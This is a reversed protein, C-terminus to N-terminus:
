GETPAHLITGLPEGKLAKQVNGPREGSFIRIVLGPHREVLAMSQQVKSAMGGTVDIQASGGLIPFIHTLSTPTIEGLLRTCAPYDAWVGAEIGALLIREPVLVNALHEFLDETSLITGGRANDFVVDGHIVPLLGNQLAAIVPKLEWSQVRGDQSIASASPSLAIVPLGAQALSEIVIRTLASAEYWVEAFGRWQEETYVGQRTGYRKAPVHGFSGSGHGIILRYGPQEDLVSKIEAALRQLVQPRHAHPCSKDTILSGGLKLFVIPYQNHQAATM